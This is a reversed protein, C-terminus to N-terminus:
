SRGAAPAEVAAGRRPSLGFRRKLQEYLCAPPYAADKDQGESSWMQQYLHVALTEGPLEELRGSPRYDAGAAIVPDAAILSRWDRYSCTFLTRWPLVWRELAFREVMTEVISTSLDWTIKGALVDAKSRRCTEAAWELAPHGPPAKLLGSCLEVGAYDATPEEVFALEGALTLPAVCVLDTDVWIGGRRALLEFRFLDASAAWSGNRFTFLEEEPLIARADRVRTGAPVGGLQRYAYLEYSHGHALFSTISLREMTSLRDGIWLGQVAPLDRRSAKGTETM